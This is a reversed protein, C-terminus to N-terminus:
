LFFYGVFYMSIVLGSFSEAWETVKFVGEHNKKRKPLLVYAM